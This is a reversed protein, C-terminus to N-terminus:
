RSSSFVHSRKKEDDCDGLQCISVANFNSVSVVSQDQEDAAIFAMDSYFKWQPKKTAEQGSKTKKIAASATRFQTRLLQWKVSLQQVSM